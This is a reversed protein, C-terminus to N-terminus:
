HSCEIIFKIILIDKLVDNLEFKSDRLEINRYLENIKKFFLAGLIILILATMMNVKSHITVEFIANLTLM